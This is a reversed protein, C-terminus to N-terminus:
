FVFNNLQHKESVFSRIDIRSWPPDVLLGELPATKPDFFPHIFNRADLSIIDEVELYLDNETAKRSHSLPMIHKAWSAPIPSPIV